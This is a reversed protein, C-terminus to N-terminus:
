RTATPRARCTALAGAPLRARECLARRLPARARRRAPAAAPRSADLAAGVAQENGSQRLGVAQLAAYRPADGRPRPPPPMSRTSAPAPPLAPRRSPWAKSPARCAAPPVSCRFAPVLAPTYTNSAEGTIGRLIPVLRGAGGGSRNRAPPFLQRRRHRDPDRRHRPRAPQRRGLGGPREGDPHRPLQRACSATAPSRRM